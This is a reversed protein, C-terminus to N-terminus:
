KRLGLRKILSQYRADDKSKLYSLLSRRKNVLMLLGRRSHNDKKHGKFHETLNAIRTTLIAVQVEPSGTDGEVTAFEKILEQKKEATISM